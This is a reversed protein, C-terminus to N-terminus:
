SDFGDLPFSMWCPFSSGISTSEVAIKSKGVREQSPSVIDVLGSLLCVDWVYRMIPFLTTSTQRMPTFVVFSLKCRRTAKIGVSPCSM